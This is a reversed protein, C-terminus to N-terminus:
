LLRETRKTYIVLKSLAHTLKRYCEQHLESLPYTITFETVYSVTGSNNYFYGDRLSADLTKPTKQLIEETACREIITICELCYNEFRVLSRSEDM